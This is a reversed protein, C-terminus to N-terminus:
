RESQSVLTYLLSITEGYSITEGHYMASNHHGQELFVYRTAGLNESRRWVNKYSGGDDHDYIFLSQLILPLYVKGLQDKAVKSIFLIIHNFKKNSSRGKFTSWLNNNPM